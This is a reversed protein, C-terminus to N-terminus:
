QGGQALGLYEAAAHLRRDLELMAADIEGAHRQAEPDDRMSHLRKQAALADRMVAHWSDDAGPAVPVPMPRAKPAANRSMQSVCAPCPRLYPDYGADRCIHDRSGGEARAARAKAEDGPAESRVEWGNGRDMEIRIHAM